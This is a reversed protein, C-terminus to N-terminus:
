REAPFSSQRGPGGAPAIKAAGSREGQRLFRSLRAPHAFNAYRLPATELTTLHHAVLVRNGAIGLFLNTDIITREM